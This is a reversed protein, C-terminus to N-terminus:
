GSSYNGEVWVGDVFWSSKSVHASEDGLLFAVSAAIEWVEPLERKLICPIQDKSQRPPTRWCTFQVAEGDNQTSAGTARPAVEFAPVKTLGFLAHKAAVYASVGQAAYQSAISGVNVISGGDKIVRMEEKLSNFTGLVNINFLRAFYEADLNVIPFIERQEVAM